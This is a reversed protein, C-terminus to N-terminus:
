IRDRNAILCDILAHAQPAIVEYFVQRGERRARVIGQARMINLHQSVAAAPLDVSEALEGVPVPKALLLEIMKIRVPHAMVRLNRAARSLMDMDLAASRRRSSARPRSRANSGSGTRAM